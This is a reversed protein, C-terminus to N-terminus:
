SAPKEDPLRGRPELNPMSGKGIGSVRERMTQFVVYLMPIIFIGFISAALMGGFVPTGVARRTTAGAGIAIVLPLLGLIFAFSTMMVPRFRLRAGAIASDQISKGLRRQDIAFEVILIGNKAALAILVVLGIQSYVDFSRGTLAVAAIAGLVGVSVSLLVSIPINWSEYLAVLFLYAFLLALALVISTSGGAAKEQLATGTWEFGYGAPLTQASIREMAALSQGSSFGPRAAGNIIAARYGNYRVLLQPGQVLRPVALARIPVMGGAGNRVYINSIDEVSKRFQTEAQVNVQWTRGFVNFDNVYFSGLTSQLANFIDFVKVGLVQAKDRDIDLYIQPTDSAFTSFVGALAPQQNASVLLGRMTAAIDAPPQGQLAELVYQFGGTSGLGLIPPLNFPFVIAQQVSALQPRLKAIIADVRQSPDTRQEYPKLRIVFFAQNSAALGDIFDYGVVSLMGEVGAIPKIIEEVQQVVSDTRNISAGEPLRMAAFFAGQDEDPLFSQPTRTFLYSSAALVGLVLVVGIVSVRVLRAVIAAYGDRAKDIAGLVYRMPGRSRHGRKILVSCLAPSLTLANLASILMSVSVAVAFQRFLQGSIGPIFAVPVFVSLLVLTIAIIPATIEGMAKKTAEAITLQPEEEVLREVNEIVVIADDVVIGIALVLALLSVTNATYGILLMVAFTGIISVPVAILPILTTRLKGLFLFVVIGVLVFAEGLTRVVEDITSTVFVTTDFFVTYALDDPFRKSLTDMAEKVAKTVQVANAGPSQYIGISAGPAGNYRTYRDSSRAGIEVRAVDKVRVVSGNPNTRLVINGFEEPNVLRGQTKITLQLQQNPSVPAAGIRGLAAQVNQGQVASIVDSPALNLATMRDPDLWVRLSYDLPGFLTAQGVGNIRALTDLVNITAYNSLYLSDYTGKPSYIELVQLLAASKKRITLGARTVESPLQPQALSARNQVNVTNIDPNTGLAFTVNLTYSGDAGSTSQYYLANDVGNIQQEIPQAVTTEVVQADAGPYSATLTVQPPVIDPFQAVPISTIAILGALTIVISIVFALRPRDVFISSIV